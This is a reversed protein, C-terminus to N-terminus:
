RLAPFKELGMADAAFRGRIICACGSVDGGAIFVGGCRQRRLQGAANVAQFNQFFVNFILRM